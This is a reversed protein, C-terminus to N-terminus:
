RNQNSYFTYYPKFDKEAVCSEYNRLSIAFPDGIDGYINDPLLKDIAQAYAEASKFDDFNRIVMYSTSGKSQELKFSSTKKAFDAYGLKTNISKIQKFIDRVQNVTSLSDEKDNQQKLQIMVFNNEDNDLNYQITKTTGQHCSIALLISLILPFYRLPSKTQM